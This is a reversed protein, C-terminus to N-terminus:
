LKDLWDGLPRVEKQGKADLGKRVRIKVALENAKTGAVMPDGANLVGWHHFSCQPFARGSTAARLSETLGFSEAVPLYAKMEVM